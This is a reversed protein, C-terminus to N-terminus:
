DRYETTPHSGLPRLLTKNTSFQPPWLIVPYTTESNRSTFVYNRNQRFNYGMERHSACLVITMCSTFHVYDEPLIGFGPFRKKFRAAAANLSTFKCRSSSPSDYARFVIIRVPNARLNLPAHSSRNKEWLKLLYNSTVSVVKFSLCDHISPVM